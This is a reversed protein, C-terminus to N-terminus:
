DRDSNREQIEVKLHRVGSDSISDPDNLIERQALL